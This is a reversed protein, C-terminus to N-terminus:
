IKAAVKLERGYSSTLLIVLIGLALEQFSANFGVGVLLTTLEAVILAGLVTRLYGGRGGLLSTGGIVVATITQFFYPEGV